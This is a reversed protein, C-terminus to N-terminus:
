LKDTITKSIHFGTEPLKEIAQRLTMGTLHGTDSLQKLTRITGQLPINLTKAKARAQRDDLVATANEQKALAITEAEGEGLPDILALTLHRDTPTKLKIEGAKVAARLDADGTLGRGNETIERYVATAVTVEEYTEKLNHLQHLHSLAIVVSSNITIKV